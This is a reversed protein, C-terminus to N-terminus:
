AKSSKAGRRGIKVNALAASSELRSHLFKDLREPPLPRSILYGQVHTCGAAAVGALQEETEVGEAATTMGLSQGLAAITRVIVANSSDDPSGRIFSQELSRRAQMQEDMTTEFFRYTCKGERKARNLALEANKLIEDCGRGDSPMLAIGVSAGIHILHGEVIYSRGLLDVLRSALTAASEPQPQGLQVVAFEDGGLRAAIDGPRIASRLRDAVVRLLADGVTAGLSDNIIKFRDLDVTLVAAAKTPEDLNALLATLRECFMLRNGLLTLPDTRALEAARVQKAVRESIDEATVLLGQALAVAEIGFSRGDRCTIERLGTRDTRDAAAGILELLEV